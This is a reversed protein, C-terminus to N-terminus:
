RSRRTGHYARAKAGAIGKRVAEALAEAAWRVQAEDEGEVMVRALPQTGSYRLLLRVKGLRQQVLATAEQVEPLSELPPRGQVPVNVIVQPFKVMAAALASLRREERVAVGLVKMATYLGDGTTSGEGFFLVHGSPEGGLVFDGDLLRQAVHRDGVPVRELRLGLGELMQELGLNSMATGVVTRRRLQGQSHLDRALIALLHDGDLYHGAEDIILARDGDGDLALGAHAHLALVAERLAQPHESGCDRNINEGDPEASLVTVQAGLRRFLEPAVQYTAGHACDLVVHWGALLNPQGARDLLGKLYTEAPSVPPVVPRGVADPHPLPATAAQPLLAEVARELEDPFKFGTGAFFKIGNDPHPNHSASIVVGLGARLHRTLFAVGPTPLVGLSMVDLGREMLGAALAAELMPGSRRTDRGIVALPAYGAARAVEAAAQGLRAVVDALLPWSPVQGRIGDTGFLPSREAM